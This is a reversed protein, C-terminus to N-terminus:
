KRSRSKEIGERAELWARVSTLRYLPTKGLRTIPPGKRARELRIWFMESKGSLKALQRRTVHELSFAIAGEHKRNTAFTNVAQGGLAKVTVVM